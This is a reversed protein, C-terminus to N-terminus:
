QTICPFMATIFSCYFGPDYIWAVHYAKERNKHTVRFPWGGAEVVAERIGAICGGNGKDAREVM